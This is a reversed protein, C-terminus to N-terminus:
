RRPRDAERTRHLGQFSELRQQLESGRPVGYIAHAQIVVHEIGDRGMPDGVPGVTILRAHFLPPAIVVAPQSLWAGLDFVLHRFSKGLVLHWEDSIGLAHLYPVLDHADR